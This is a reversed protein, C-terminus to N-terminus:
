AQKLSIGPDSLGQVLLTLESFKEFEFDASVDKSRHGLTRQRRLITLAGVAERAGNIDNHGNDGIMWVPGAGVALKSLALQFPAAHPKDVGAEESTVVFDFYNELKFYILKRFQIQATLDTVIATPIELLRVEELFDRVGPFLEARALFTRWYTQEFDLSLLVQTKMGLSEILRQFYLLRSHAGATQGLQAKVNDRAKEFAVRFTEPKIGLLREAKGIVAAMAAEHAPDYAYLTNDLDFLMAKPLESFISRRMPM